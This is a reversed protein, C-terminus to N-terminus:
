LSPDIPQKRISLYSIGLQQALVPLLKEEPAIGLRILTACLPEKKNGQQEKLAQDLQQPTIVGAALLLQGIRVNNRQVAM